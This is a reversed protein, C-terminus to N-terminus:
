CHSFPDPTYYDLPPIVGLQHFLGLWDVYNWEETIKGDAWHSVTCGTAIVQKGTPPVPLAPSRGTHTARFTWPGAHTDGDLIIEKVRLHM